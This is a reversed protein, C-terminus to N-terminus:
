LQEPSVAFLGEAGATAPAALGHVAPLLHDAFFRATDVKAALFGADHSSGGADLLSRAAAASRGLLWGGVTLSLMRLYPAAGALLDNVDAVGHELLWATTQEVTDVAEALRGGIAALADDGSGTLEAATARMRAVQDAVVGGARMPLKRGVLDIAQIGNTGEYIQTIRVDRLYQAVGTEEIFGMGGYIQITLNAVDVGVDTGWAKVLPTLLEVLEGAGERRSADPHHRWLDIHEAELYAMARLAEVSAKQTLLMRRVDPHEVILSRTGPEAGVARGQQREQAYRRADQYAREAVGLGEIGVGLRANNMMTFMYRMGAHEEGVLYGVAGDSNDGYALVCTPSAKIGMKHEISVVHVDNREGLSGDDGVLFKPVIFLSIGKTGPPADPTRALVLHIIQPALDHEGFTIFIKQGTIRYTGDGQRVAKTRLAGVDSGAEPETLNMTGTWEGSVMKPLFVQQQTESGHAVLAEIAGQTLLPAMAFAMNASNLLEQLVIGVLHPFGGGGYGPDFSVGGWGAAVYQDYATKFSEPTRVEDGELISGELDGTRNTPAIVESVFRGYEEIVGQVSAPDAHTFPELKSLAELDVIQDLLFDIDQLPPLYDSM